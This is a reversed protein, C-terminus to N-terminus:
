LREAYSGPAIPDSALLFRITGEGARSAVAGWSHQRFMLWIVKKEHDPIAASITHLLIDKDKVSKGVVTEKFNPAGKLEALFQGLNQNTYPPVHAIWIRDSKSTMHTWQLPVSDDFDVTRRGHWNRQDDSHFPLTDKTISGRTPKHNYEGTLDVLDLM